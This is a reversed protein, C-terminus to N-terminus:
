VHDNSRKSTKTKKTNKTKKHKKKKKELLLRCVLDHHSQLESTHEESRATGRRDPPSQGPRRDPSMRCRPPPPAPARTGESTNDPRRSCRSSCTPSRATSRRERPGSTDGAASNIPYSRWM